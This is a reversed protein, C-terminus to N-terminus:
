ANSIWHGWWVFNMLDIKYLM